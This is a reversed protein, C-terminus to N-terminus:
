RNKLLSDQESESIFNRVYTLGNIDNVLIAEEVVDTDENDFNVKSGSSSLSDKIEQNNTELCKVKEKEESIYSEQFLEMQVCDVINEKHKFNKTM